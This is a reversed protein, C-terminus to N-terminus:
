SALSVGCLLLALAIYGGETGQPITLHRVRYGAASYAIYIVAWVWSLGLTGVQTEFYPAWFHNFSVVTGFLVMAGVVWILARSQRLRAWSRAFAEREGVRELPEGQGNMRVRCLVVAGLSTVVVPLWILRYSLLAILVGILGGILFLGARIIAENAYVRRLEGDRGERSLADAIWAQQAGSLFAMGVAILGEAFAASWFGVACLYALGGLAHFAAGAALSFARSRGDAFLGTPLEFAILIAWFLANVLAVQSLTLGIALLFPVYVTVTAGLGLGILASFLYYLRTASM